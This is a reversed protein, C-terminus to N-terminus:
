LHDSGQQNEALATTQVAPEIVVELQENIGTSASSKNQETIEFDEELFKVDEDDLQLADENDNNDCFWIQQVKGQNLLFHKNSSVSM